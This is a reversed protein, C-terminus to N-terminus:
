DCSIMMESWSGKKRKRKKEKVVRGLDEDCMLVYIGTLRLRELGFLLIVSSCSMVPVVGEACATNCPRCVSLVRKVM